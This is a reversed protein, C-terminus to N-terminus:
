PELVNLVHMQSAASADQDIYKLLKYLITSVAHWSNEQPLAELLLSCCHEVLEPAGLTSLDEDKSRTDSISDLAEVLDRFTPDM